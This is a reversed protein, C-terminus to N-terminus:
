SIIISKSAILMQANLARLQGNVRTHLAHMSIGMVAHDGKGALVRSFSPSSEGGCQACAGLGCIWAGRGASREWVFAGCVRGLWTMMTCMPGSVSMVHIGRETTREATRETACRM